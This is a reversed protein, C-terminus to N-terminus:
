LSRRADPCRGRFSIRRVKMLTLFAQKYAESWYEGQLKALDVRMDGGDFADLHTRLDSEAMDRRLKLEDTSLANTM